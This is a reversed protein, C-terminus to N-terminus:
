SSGINSRIHNIVGVHMQVCLCLWLSCMGGHISPFRVETELEVWVQQAKPVLADGKRVLMTWHTGMPTTRDENVGSMVHLVFDGRALAPDQQQTIVVASMGMRKAPLDRMSHTTNTQTDYAWAAVSTGTGCAAGLQGGVFYLYRGDQAVAM